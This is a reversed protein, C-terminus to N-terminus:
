NKNMTKIIKEAYSYLQALVLSIIFIVIFELVNNNIGLKVFAFSTMAIIQSHILFLEFSINGIYIFFRNEYLSIRSFKSYMHSVMFLVIMGLSLLTRLYVSYWPMICISLAVVYGILTSWVVCSLAIYCSKRNEIFSKINEINVGLIMGLFYDTTRFFPNVYTLWLSNESAHCVYIWIIRFILILIFTWFCGGKRRKLDRLIKLLSPTLLAFFCVLTLYWSVGGLSYYIEQKPVFSKLMTFHLLIVSIPRKVGSYYDFALRIFSMIVHLPYIKKIHKKVYASTSINNKIWASEPNFTVVYGSLIIFISVGIGGWSPSFIEIFTCHSCFILLFGIGRLAQLSQVRKVM